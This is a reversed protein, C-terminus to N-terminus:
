GTGHYVQVGIRGPESGTIEFVAERCVWNSPKRRTILKQVATVDADTAETIGCRMSGCVAGTSGCTPPAGFSHGGNPVVVWFQSQWNTPPEVYWATFTWYHSTTMGTAPFCLTLGTEIGAAPGLAYAESTTEGSDVWTTGGDQSWRFLATGRNGPTTIEIRYHSRLATRHPIGTVVLDQVMETHTYGPTMIEAGTFGFAECEQILATESAAKEYISRWAALRARHHADTEGPYRPMRREEALKQRADEPQEYSRTWPAMAALLCAEQMCDGILGVCEVFRRGYTGGAWPLSGFVYNAIDRCTIM